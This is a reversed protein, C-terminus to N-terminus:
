AEVFDHSDGFEPCKMRQRNSLNSLPIETSNREKQQAESHYPYEIMNSKYGTKHFYESDHKRLFDNTLRDLEERTM